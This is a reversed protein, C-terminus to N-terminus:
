EWCRDCRRDMGSICVQFLVIMCLLIFQAQLYYTYGSHVTCTVHADYGPCPRSHLSHTLATSLLLAAADALTTSKCSFHATRALLLALRELARM